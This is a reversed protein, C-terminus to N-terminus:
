PNLNIYGLVGTSEGVYYIKESNSDYLLDRIREGVKYQNILEIDQNIFDYKYHLLSQSYPRQITDYGLSSIIFENYSENEKIIRIESVAPNVEYYKIPEIHGYDSHSKYIPASKIVRKSDGGHADTRSDELSYHVGYSSIPWGFNKVIDTNLNLNIEDGGAPGHESSLIYDFQDSYDLGQPNRHGISIIRSGSNIKNIAIIKGNDLNYDQASTRDRFDGISLLLSDSKFNTIRGGSQIPSFEKITSSIYNRPSFFKTFVLSDSFKSKLIATNYDGNSNSEIYSVYVDEKDIFIDKIGFKSVTYPNYYNLYAKKEEIKKNLFNSINSKLSSFKIKGDYIKAQFFIGNKTVYVIDDNYTDIYATNTENISVAPFIPPIIYKVSNQAISPTIVFELGQNNVYDYIDYYQDGLEIDYKFFVSDNGTIINKIWSLRLYTKEPVYDRILLKIPSRFLYTIFFLLFIIVSFLQIRKKISNMM